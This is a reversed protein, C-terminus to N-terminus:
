SMSTDIRGLSAAALTLLEHPAQRAVVGRDVEHAQVRNNTGSVDSAPNRAFTGASRCCCHDSPTTSPATCPAVQFSSSTAAGNQALM